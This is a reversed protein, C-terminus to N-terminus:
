DYIVDDYDLCRKAFLKYITLLSSRPLFVNIRITLSISKVAEEKIKENIHESFNFKCKLFIGLYNQTNEREFHM